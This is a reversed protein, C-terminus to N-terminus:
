SGRHPEAVVLSLVGGAVAALLALVCDAVIRDPDDPQPPVEGSASTIVLVGQEIRYELGLERLALRLSTKLPVAELTIVVPSHPTKEAENLGVPDLFIPIGQAGPGSTAAQIYTVVHELPTDVPFWMSIPQELAERIRANAAVVPDGSSAALRRVFPPLWPRLALVLQETARHPAPMLESGKGFLLIMAGAGFVAAGLWPTRPRRRGCAAGLVALGILGWTLVLMSGAWLGPGWRSGWVAVWAATVIGVLAIALPQRRWGRLPEEAVSLGARPSEVQSRPPGFFARALYGGLAAAVLGWLCHGVQWRSFDLVVMCGGFPAGTFGGGRGGMAAPPEDIDPVVARLLTMTPLSPSSYAGWFALALYGWGFVAFGLWWARDAGRRCAAGVVALALIGSTLLLLVGAWIESSDRLAALGLAVLLVVGMLRAISFRPLRM